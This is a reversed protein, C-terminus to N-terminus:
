FLRLAIYVTMQHLHEPIIKRVCTCGMLALNLSCCDLAACLVSCNDVSGSSNDWLHWHCEMCPARALSETFWSQCKRDLKSVNALWANLNWILESGETNKWKNASPSVQPGNYTANNGFTALFPIAERWFPKAESNSGKKCLLNGWAEICTSRTSRLSGVSDEMEQMMGFSTQVFQVTAGQLRQILFSLKGVKCVGTRLDHKIWEINRTETDSKRWYGFLKEM